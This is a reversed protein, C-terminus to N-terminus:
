LLDGGGKARERVSRFRCSCRDSFNLTPLPDCARLRHGHENLMEAESGRLAVQLPKAAM